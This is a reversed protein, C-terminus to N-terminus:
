VMTFLEVTENMADSPSDITEQLAQLADRDQVANGEKSLGFCVKLIRWVNLISDILATDERSKFNERFNNIM